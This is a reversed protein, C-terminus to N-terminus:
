GGGPSYADAALGDIGGYIWFQGGYRPGDGAPQIPGPTSVFKARGESLIRESNWIGANLYLLGFRGYDRASSYTQGSMLFDGNWDSEPTSRTLGFTCFRDKFHLAWFVKDDKVAQGVAREHVVM